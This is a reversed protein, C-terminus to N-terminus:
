AQLRDLERRLNLRAREDWEQQAHSTLYLRDRRVFDGLIRSRAARYDQEPVHAYEERVQGCYADFRDKSASLIWLDADHFAQGLATGDDGHHGDTMRILAEVSGTQEAPVGISGLSQSALRASAAENAGDRASPDYVADHFWAAIRALLAHQADVAKAGELEELAWFVEVLHTTTHYRRQPENWRRLLDEGMSGVLEQDVGPALQELDHTWWTILAPM